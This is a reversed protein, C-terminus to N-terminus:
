RFPAAIEEIQVERIYARALNAPYVVLNFWGSKEGMADHVSPALLGQLGEAYIRRAIAQPAVYADKSTRPRILDELQVRLRTRAEPRTLDVLRDLTIEFEVCAMVESDEGSRSVIEKLCLDKSGSFYLAGFEGRVSYRREQTFSPGAELITQIYLKPLCRWFHRDKVSVCPFGL